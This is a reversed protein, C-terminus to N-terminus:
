TPRRRGGRRPPRLRPVPQAAGRRGIASRWSPRRARPEEASAAPSGALRQTWGRILGLPNRTEHALGAAAQGLARHHRAEAELRGRAAALRM